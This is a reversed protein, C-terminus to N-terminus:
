DWVGHESDWKDRGTRAAHKRNDEQVVVLLWGKEEPTTAARERACRM